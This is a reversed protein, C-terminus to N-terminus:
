KIIKQIENKIHEAGAPGYHDRILCYSLIDTEKGPDNCDSANPGACYHVGKVQGYLPDLFLKSSCIDKGQVIKEVLIHYLGFLHGLEHLGTNRKAYLADYNEIPYIVTYQGGIKNGQGFFNGIFKNSQPEYVETKISKYKIIGFVKDIKSKDISSACKVLQAICPNFMSQSEINSYKPSPCKLQCDKPEMKQFSIKDKIESFPYMNLIRQKFLNAEKEFNNKDQSTNNYNLPVFLIDFSASSLSPNSPSTPPTTPPTPQSPTSPPSPPPPPNTPSRPPISTSPNQPSVSISSTSGKPSPDCLIVTQNPAEGSILPFPSSSESPGSPEAPESAPLEPKGFNLNKIEKQVCKGSPDCIKLTATLSGQTKYIHPITWTECGLYRTFKQGDGFDIEAELCKNSQYCDDPDYAKFSFQVICGGFKLQSVKGKLSFFNIQPPIDNQRAKCYTSQASASIALMFIAFVMIFANIMKLLTKNLIKRKDM